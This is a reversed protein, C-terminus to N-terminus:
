FKNVHVRLHTKLNGKERFLRNCDGFPCKYLNRELLQILFNKSQEPDYVDKIEKYLECIDVQSFFLFFIKVNTRNLEFIKAKKPRNDKKAFETDIM